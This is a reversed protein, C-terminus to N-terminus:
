KESTDKFMSVRNIVNRLFMNSDWSLPFPITVNRNNRTFSLYFKGGKGFLKINHEEFIRSYKGIKNQDENIQGSLIDAAAELLSKEKKM